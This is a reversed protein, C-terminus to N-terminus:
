YTVTNSPTGWRIAAGNPIVPTNDFTVFLLSMNTM